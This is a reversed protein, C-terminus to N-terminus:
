NYYYYDTKMDFYNVLAYRFLVVGTSGSDVGDMRITHGCDRALLEPTLWTSSSNGYTTVGAWVEAEARGAKAQAVFWKTTNFLWYNTDTYSYRYIMPMFIDVYPAMKKTDQGYYTANSSTEPMLAASLKITPDVSKIAASMQKCFETIAAVGTVGNGESSYDHKNATGPYRVYDLHIGAINGYAAYKKARTILEDFYTQNFKKPTSSIDIPNIWTSTSTNHFCVFWIHINVGAARAVDVRSKFAAEGMDAVAAEHIIVHNIGYGALTQFNATPFAGSWMWIANQITRPAPPQTSQNAAGKTPTTTIVWTASANPFAAYSANDPHVKDVGIKTDRDFVSLEENKKTVLSLVLAKTMDFGSSMTGAAKDFIWYAGPEISTGSAVAAITTNTSGTPSKYLLKMGSMDVADEGTNLIEVWESGKVGSVENIVLAPLPAETEVNAAGKTSTATVVWMETGAPFRSYSGAKLHTRDNGVKRDRDFISLEEDKATVLRLVLKKTMDFGADLTGNGRDFVIYAGAAISTGAPVTALVTDEVGEPDQYVIKMGSMDVADETPNFIEIWQSGEVAYVENLVIEPLAPEETVGGEDNCAVCSSLVLLAVIKLKNIYQM